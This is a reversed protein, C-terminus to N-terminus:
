PRTKRKQGASPAAVNAAATPAFADSASATAPTAVITTATGTAAATPLSGTVATTTAAAPAPTPLNAAAAITGDRAGESAGDTVGDSEGDSEGESDGDSTRDRAGESAGDSDSDDVGDAEGDPDGDSDGDLDGDTGGESNSELDGNSNGEPVSERDGESDGDTDGESEGDSAGESGGDSGGDSDGDNAGDTATSSPFAVEANGSLLMWFRNPDTRVALLERELVKARYAIPRTQQIALLRPRFRNTDLYPEVSEQYLEHNQYHADLDIAQILMNVKLMDLLAQIRAKIVVPPPPTIPPDLEVNSCLNLVELTPHAKLSDCIAGWTEDNVNENCELNLEKLGKNERLAGAVASVQRDVELSNSLGLQLSL